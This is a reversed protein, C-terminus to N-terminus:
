VRCSFCPRVKMANNLLSGSQQFCGNEKQKMSLWNFANTIHTKEIFIYSQAQAFAKLVFATLRDLPFLSPSRLAVERDLSGTHTNGTSVSRSPEAPSM